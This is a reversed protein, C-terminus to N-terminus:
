DLVGAAALAMLLEMVEAAEAENREQDRMLRRKLDVGYGGGGTPPTPPPPPPPAGGTSLGATLLATGNLGLTTPAVGITTAIGGAATLTGTLGLGGTVQLAFASPSGFFRPGFYRAGFHRRGFHGGFGPVPATIVIGAALTLAGSMGSVALPPTFYFVENEYTFATDATLAASLELGRTQTLEFDVGFDVKASSALLEGALVVGATQTIAFDEARGNSSFFRSGFYRPGFFRSGFHASDVVLGLKGFYRAGFHRAGFYRGAFM